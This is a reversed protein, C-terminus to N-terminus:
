LGVVPGMRERTANQKEGPFSSIFKKVKDDLPITQEYYCDELYFIPCCLQSDFQSHFLRYLVADCQGELKKVIEETVVLCSYKNKSM